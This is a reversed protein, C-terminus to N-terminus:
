FCAREVERRVELSIDASANYLCTLYYARLNRIQGDTDTVKDLVHRYEEYGLSLLRAVVDERRRRSGAIRIYDSRLTLTDSVISVLNDYYFLNPDDRDKLIQYGMREKVLDTVERENMGDIRDSLPNQHYSPSIMTFSNTTPSNTTTHPFAEDPDEMLPLYGYPDNEDEQPLPSFSPAPKWADSFDACPAKAAPEQVPQKRIKKKRSDKEVSSPDPHDVLEYENVGLRGQEKRQTVVVLNRTRLERILKLYTSQSIGLYYLLNEVRPFACKGGGTFSALLAYLAKAKCTIAPDEMVVRPLIGYGAGRIGKMALTDRQAPPEKRLFEAYRPPNSVLHYVNHCFGRDRSNPM